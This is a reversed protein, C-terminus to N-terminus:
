WEPKGPGEGGHGRTDQGAAAAEEPPADRHPMQQRPDGRFMGGTVTRNPAGSRGQRPHRDAHFVMWIFVFLGAAVVIPIVIVALTSGLM